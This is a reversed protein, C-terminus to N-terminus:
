LVAGCNPCTKPEQSKPETNTEQELLPEPFQLADFAVDVVVDAPLEAEAIFMDIGEQTITQFQSTILLLRNKAQKFDDGPIFYVPIEYGTNDFFVQEKNLVRLRGHGDLCYNHDDHQWVFVPVFFGQTQISRLLKDYNDKKLDKLEGQFPEIKRYDLLSTGERAVTIM